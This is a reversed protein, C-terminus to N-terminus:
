VDPGEELLAHEVGHDRAVDSQAFRGTMAHRRHGVVRFGAAGFRIDREAPLEERAIGGRARLRLWLMASLRGASPRPSLASIGSAGAAGASRESSTSMSRSRGFRNWGRVAMSSLRSSSSAADIREFPIM